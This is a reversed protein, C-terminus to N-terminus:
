HAQNNLKASVEPSAQKIEDLYGKGYGLLVSGPIAVYGLFLAVSWVAAGKRIVPWWAHNRLGLSQFMASAGHSLHFCLGGVALVYFLSVYWVGFGAIVMAYVDPYGEETKLESFLIETGNVSEVRVTFHLLHYVVFAAVLLGAPMMWRSAVSAAFAPKGHSYDTPRAAKNEVALSIAAWIHVLILALLGFRIIWLLEGLSQLFHAYHNLVKPGLFVQLNGVMHGTVFLLLGAGSIAMLYKKGLSSNLM